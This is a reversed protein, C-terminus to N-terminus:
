SALRPFRHLPWILSERWPGNPHARDCEGQLRRSHVQAARADDPFRAIPLRGHALREGERWLIIARLPDFGFGLQRIAAADKGRRVERRCGGLMMQTSSLTGSACVGTDSPPSVQFQTLLLGAGNEPVHRM